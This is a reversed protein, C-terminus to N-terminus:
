INGSEIDALFQYTSTVNRDVNYLHTAARHAERILTAYDEEPMTAAKQMCDVFDKVTLFRLGIEHGTERLGNDFQEKTGGTDRGIVLCDNIMAEATIRGFGECFSPVIIARAKKMKEYTHSTPGCITVRNTLREAVLYDTLTKRYADGCRGWLELRYDSNVAAFEKFAEVLWTVGKTPNLSGVYIFTKERKVNGSKGERIREIGNYITADHSNLRFYRHLNTTITISNSHNRVLWGFVQRSPIRHLRFDKDGYERIHWVHPVHIRKSAFWGVDILSVNTHIMTAKWEKAIRAVAQAAKFNLFSNHVFRPFFMCVDKVNRCPPWVAFRIDLIKYPIDEKTLEDCLFGPETTVVFIDVGKRKLGTLLNLLSFTAGGRYSASAITLLRM